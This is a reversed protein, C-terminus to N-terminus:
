IRSDIWNVIVKVERIFRIAEKPNGLGPTYRLSTEWTTVYALADSVDVPLAPSGTKGYEERLWEFSHANRGRFRSEVDLHQSEPAANLILAKLMCEVAYGALYVAGGNYGADSLVEAEELRQFAVRYFKRAIPSRPSTM